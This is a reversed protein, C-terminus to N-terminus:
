IGGAVDVLTQPEQHGAKLVPAGCSARDKSVSKLQQVLEPGLFPLRLTALEPCPVDVVEGEATLPRLGDVASSVLNADQLELMNVRPFLAFLQVPDCWSAWARQSRVVLERVSLAVSGHAFATIAQALAAKTAGGTGLEVCFSSMSGMDSLSLTLMTFSMEITLRTRADESLYIAPALNLQGLLKRANLGYLRVYARAPVALHAIILRLLSVSCSPGSCDGIELTQLHPLAIPASADSIPSHRQHLDSPLGRLSIHELSSARELLALLDSLAWDIRTCTEWSLTLVSLSYFHNSPLFPVDHLELTELKPAMGSWLEAVSAFATPAEPGGYM